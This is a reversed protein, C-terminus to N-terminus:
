TLPIRVAIQPCLLPNFARKLILQLEKRKEWRPVAAM